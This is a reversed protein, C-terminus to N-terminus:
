SQTGLEFVVRVRRLNWSACVEDVILPQQVGFGPSPGQIREMLALQEHVDREFPPVHCRRAWIVRCM